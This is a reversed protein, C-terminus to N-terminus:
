TALALGVELGWTMNGADPNTWAIKIKDGPQLTWASPEALEESTVRFHVDSGTGAQTITFLTADYTAGATSDIAIALPATGSGGTFHCRVFVIRFRRELFFLEDIDGTGTATQSEVVNTQQDRALALEAAQDAFGQQATLLLQLPDPM